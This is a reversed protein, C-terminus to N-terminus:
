KISTWLLLRCQILLHLSPQFSEWLQDYNSNIQRSDLSLIISAKGLNRSIPINNCFTVVQILTFKVNNYPNCNSFFAKVKFNLPLKLLVMMIQLKLWKFCRFGLVKSPGLFRLVKWTGLVWLRWSRPDWTGIMIVWCWFNDFNGLVKVGELNWAGTVWCQSM